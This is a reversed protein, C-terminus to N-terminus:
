WDIHLRTAFAEGETKNGIPDLPTNTGAFRIYNFQLKIFPNWYWNLGATLSHAKNGERSRLPTGSVSAWDYRLALELAGWGGKGDFNKFPRVREFNGSKFPRSEGTLFWTGYVYWGEFSPDGRLPDLTALTAAPLDATNERHIKLHGYEGALTFPGYVGTAEFGYYWASKADPIVGSDIINGNDVRINPRDSAQVGVATATRLDTRYFTSAGVHLIKRDELIPEWTARANFGYGEDPTDCANPKPTNAPPNSKACTASASANNAARGISENEGFLGATVTFNPKIYGLSVGIRREAGINGAVNTFMGREIFVNYNDSNNSELGFPAKHQGITIQLPKIGVYQVYADQIQVVNGAFDAELRWNFNKFATGEVGLRARRFGTGNNFDYGGRKENFGVYDADVVGRLKFTTAGTVDSFTPVIGNTASAKAARVEVKEVRTQTESAQSRLQANEQELSQVRAELANLRDLLENGTAPPQAPPPPAADPVPTDLVQASALTPLTLALACLSV